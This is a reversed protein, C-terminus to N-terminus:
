CFTGQFQNLYDLSRRIGDITDDLPEYEIFYVGDFDIRPLLSGYDLDDDGPACAVWGDGVQRWDKLHCYRIRGNLLDLCLERDDPAFPKLNGPDYNFGIQQPLERLLRELCDRRTTVSHLHQAVGDMEHIVGHTEIAITLGLQECEKQCTEFANFMRGWIAETMESAPTWGAFLRVFKAGCEAAWRLQELTDRVQREHKSVDASTFDNELCCYSTEIGFSDALERFGRANAQTMQGPLRGPQGGGIGFEMEHFGFDAAIEFHQKMPLNRFGWEGCGLQM